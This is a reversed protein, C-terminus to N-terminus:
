AVEDRSLPVQARSGREPLPRAGQSGQPIERQDVRDRQDHLDSAPDRRRARRVPVLDPEPRVRAVAPEDPRHGERQPDADECRARRRHRVELDTLQGRTANTAFATLRYGDVDDFRLQAGPHPRERRVIVRMGALDGLGTFEAVDAGDRPRGDTNYASELINEPILRYLEPTNMPLTFGVLYAVRRNTLTAITGKTSGAGDIGVLVKRGPRAGLGIQGLADAIGTRHDEATDSGAKGPRLLITLPEGTGEPGHDNLRACRTFGSARRSRRV